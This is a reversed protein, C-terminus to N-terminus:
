NKQNAGILASELADTLAGLHRIPIKRILAYGDDKSLKIGNQVVFGGLFKMRQTMSGEVLDLYEGTTMDRTDVVLEFERMDPVQVTVSIVGDPPPSPRNDVLVTSGNRKETVNPAKAQKVALAEVAAAKETDSLEDWNSM